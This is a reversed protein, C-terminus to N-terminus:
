QFYRDKPSASARSRCRCMNQPVLTELHRVAPGNRTRSIYDSISDRALQLASIYANLKQSTQVCFSGLSRTWRIDWLLDDRRPMWIGTKINLFISLVNHVLLICSYFMQLCCLQFPTSVFTLALFRTYTVVNKTLLM